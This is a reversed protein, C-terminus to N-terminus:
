QGLVIVVLRLFSSEYNVEFPTFKSTVQNKMLEQAIKHAALVENRAEKLTNLREEVAPLQAM